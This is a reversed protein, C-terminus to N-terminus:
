RRAWKLLREVPWTNIVRAAPVGALRAHAIATEAFELDAASHADSDLAFLCGADVALRALGHDVDQRSPDGDIEIAVQHRAAEEFVQGWDASVGPRAGYKRGRPHGLIHVGPTRVTRLMRATQDTTVRLAAHPAAVVLELQRLENAGMDLAGDAGINAEIGKILRFRGRYRENLRDIEAHQQAMASMSMGRAIPLGYSHDTVACYEYGRALVSTVIAELTQSGDSWVSHMQLDGRYRKLSVAGPAPARLAAIVQSRTLFNARWARSREIAADRGIAKVAQEVIQSTGTALVELIVRTSSPGVHRIKRLLGDKQLYTQIPEELDRIAAAAREYAWRRQPSTQVAALDQLQAAIIGNLDRERPM